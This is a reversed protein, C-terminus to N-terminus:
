YSYFSFSQNNGNRDKGVIEIRGRAGEMAAILDEPEGFTKGNFKVVVFGEGLGMQSITKGRQINLLRIGTTLGFKQLDSATLPQFDAGLLKSNVAGKMLLAQNESKGILGLEATFEKGERLVKLTLTQGPRKYALHEDFMPKGDVPMGGLQTIIDGVRVGAKFAPGDEVLETVKVADNSLNYRKLEDSSVEGVTMGSFARLVVGNDMLDAVVKM